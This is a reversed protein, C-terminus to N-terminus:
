GEATGLVMSSLLWIRLNIKKANKAVNEAANPQLLPAVAACGFASILARLLASRAKQRDSLVFHLRPFSQQSVHFAWLRFRSAGGNGEFVVTQGLSQLVEGIRALAAIELLLSGRGSSACRYLNVLRM